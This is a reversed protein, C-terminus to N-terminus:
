CTELFMLSLLVIRVKLKIKYTNHPVLHRVRAIVQDGVVSCCETDDGNNVPNFTELAVSNNLQDLVEYTYSDIDQGLQDWRVDFTTETIDFAVVQQPPKLDVHLFCVYRNLIFSAVSSMCIFVFFNAIFSIIQETIEILSFRVGHRLFNNKSNSLLTHSFVQKFPFIHIQVKWM